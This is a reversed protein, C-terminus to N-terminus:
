SIFSHMYKLINKFLHIYFENIFTSAKKEINKCMLSDFGM